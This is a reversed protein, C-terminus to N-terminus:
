SKFEYPEKIQEQTTSVLDLLPNNSKENKYNKITTKFVMAGGPEM